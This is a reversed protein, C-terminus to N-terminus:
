CTDNFSFKEIFKSVKDSLVIKPLENLESEERYIYEFRMCFDNAM